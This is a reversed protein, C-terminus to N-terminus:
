ILRGLGAIGYFSNREIWGPPITSTKTRIALDNIDKIRRNISKPWVFCRKGTKLLKETLRIGAEDNDNIWINDPFEKSIYEIEEDNVSVGMISISNSINLSDLIGELVCVTQSRNVTKEGYIAKEPCCDFDSTLYRVANKENGFYRAQFYYPNDFENYFPIIIYDKFKQNVRDTPNSCFYMKNIRNIPLFRETLYKRVMKEKDNLFSPDKLSVCEEKLFKVLESFENSSNLQESYDTRDDEVNEVQINEKFDRYITNIISEYAQPLYQKIFLDARRKYGCNHCYVVYPKKLTLLILRRKSKNKKSDGCVICRGICRGKSIKKAGPINKTFINQIINEPIEM